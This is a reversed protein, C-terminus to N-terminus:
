APRTLRAAYFGDMGGWEPWLGPHTRLDGQPTIATALGPVDGAALPARILGLRASAAAVRGHGEEDQLSCVAYVLTGGPALMASAADLLRDQMAACDDIDAPRRLHPIEPHRRITGTASCPADLLITDFPENPRWALADATVVDVDMGMRACNQRLRDLRRGDRDLATVRAGAAALQMTKGGPAACLDLVRRGEVDGFLRAPMAAAADQVWLTAGTFGPLTTVDTGTPLRITANPLIIGGEPPESGPLISLDLPAEARHAVAIARADKGWSAWLWSPTDLRPQDFADLTAPGAATVRRLVANVLGAFKGMGVAHALAVSTSVAAHPPAGLFLAQAAGIRLVHRIKAPPAKTLHTELAADLTGLHRLVSAAIRHGAARDRAPVDRKGLQDIAQDLPRHKDLVASLLAFAADRTPDRDIEDM